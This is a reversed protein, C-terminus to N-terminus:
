KWGASKKFLNVKVKKSQVGKPKEIDRNIVNQVDFKPVGEPTVSINATNFTKDKLDVNKGDVNAMYVGENESMGKDIAVKKQFLNLM